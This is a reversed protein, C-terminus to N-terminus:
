IQVHIVRVEKDKTLFSVSVKLLQHGEQLGSLETCFLYIADFPGVLRRTGQTCCGAKKAAYQRRIERIEQRAKKVALCIDM